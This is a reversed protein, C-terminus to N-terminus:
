EIWVPAKAHQDSVDSAHQPAAEIAPQLREAEGLRLPAREHVDRAGLAQALRREGFAELDLRDRDAPEDVAHLAGAPDLPTAVRGVPSGHLKVERRLRLRDDFLDVRARVVHHGLAHRAQRRGRLLLKELVQLADLLVEPGRFRLGLLGFGVSPRVIDSTGSRGADAGRASPAGAAAAAGPSAGADPVDALPV